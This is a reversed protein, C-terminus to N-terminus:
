MNNLLNIPEYRQSRYKLFFPYGNTCRELCWKVYASIVDTSIEGPTKLYKSKPLNILYHM